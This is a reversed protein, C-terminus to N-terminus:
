SVSTEKFSVRCFLWQLAALNTLAPAIGAGDGCINLRLTRTTANYVGPVCTYGKLASATTAQFCCTFGLFTGPDTAWTLDVLGVGIYTTVLGDGHVKTVATTGGVFKVIHDRLEPQSAMAPYFNSSM